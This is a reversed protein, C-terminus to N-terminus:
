LTGVRRVRGEAREQWGPPVLDPALDALPAMVFTREHMRPHPVVLDPEGVTVGEIWLVDADLPRPGFRQERSRDRGARDEIQHATALLQRPSLSTQLEVVLNLYPPQGPPGGV